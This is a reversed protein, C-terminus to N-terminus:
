SIKVKSYLILASHLSELRLPKVTYDNMGSELCKQLEEPMADATCAVIWPSDKEHGPQARIRRTAERGDLDPMQVDMFVIDFEEKQVREVCDLGGSAFQATQGIKMLAHAFVKQNVLNDDVVLIKLAPGNYTSTPASISTAEAAHGDAGRFNAISFSFTSGKGPTDERRISGGMLEVLQESIMLGLGTGGSRAYAANELRVFPQFLRRADAPAIAPGSDRVALRL